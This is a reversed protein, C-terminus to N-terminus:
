IDRRSVLNPSLLSDRDCCAQTRSQSGQLRGEGWLKDDQLHCMPNWTLGLRYGEEGCPGLRCKNRGWNKRVVFAKVVQVGM